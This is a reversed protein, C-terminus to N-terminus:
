VEPSKDMQKEDYLQTKNNNIIKLIPTAPKSFCLLLYFVDIKCYIVFIFFICAHQLQM